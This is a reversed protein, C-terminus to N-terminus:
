EDGTKIWALLTLIMIAPIVTQHGCNSCESAYPSPLDDEREGCFLCYGAGDQYAELLDKETIM